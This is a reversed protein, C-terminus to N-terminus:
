ENKAVIVEAYRLIKGDLTYGRREEGVVTGTPVDSRAETSVARHRSPDFAQGESEIQRVGAGQLVIQVRKYLLEQGDLWQGLTAMAEDLVPQLTTDNEVEDSAPSPLRRVRERWFRWRWFPQPATESVGEASERREVTRATEIREQLRELGDEAIALSADLADAVGLMEGCLAAKIEIISESSHLQAPVQEVRQTLRQLEAIASDFIEQNREAARATKFLERGVRRVEGSLGEVAENLPPATDEAAFKELTQGVQSAASASLKEMVRSTHEAADEVLRELVRNTQQMAAAAIQGLLQRTQEVASAAIQELVITTQRIAKDAFAEQKASTTGAPRVPATELDDSPPAASTFEVAGRSNEEPHEPHVSQSSDSRTFEVAEQSAEEAGSEEEITDSSPLQPEALEGEPEEMWASTGQQYRKLRLRRLSDELTIESSAESEMSNSTGPESDPEVM